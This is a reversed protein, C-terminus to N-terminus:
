TAYAVLVAATVGVIAASAVIEATPGRLGSLKYATFIWLPAFQSLFDLDVDLVNRALAAEVLLVAAALLGVRVDPNALVGPLRHPRAHQPRAATM